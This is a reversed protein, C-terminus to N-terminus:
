KAAVAKFTLTQDDDALHLAKGLARDEIVAQVLTEDASHGYDLLTGVHKNKADYLARQGSALAPVRATALHRHNKHQALAEHGIYGSKDRSLGGLAELNLAQPLIHGATDAYIEPIGARIRAAYWAEAPLADAQPQESIFPIVGPVGGILPKGTYHKGSAGTGLVHHLKAGPVGGM